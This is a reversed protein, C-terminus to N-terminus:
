CYTRSYRLARVSFQGIGTYNQTQAKIAIAAKDQAAHISDMKEICWTVGCQHMDCHIIAGIQAGIM